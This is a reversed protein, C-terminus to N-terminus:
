QIEEIYEGIFVDSFSEYDNGVPFIVFFAYHYSLDNKYARLKCHDCKCQGEDQHEQLNSSKKAEIVIFNDRTGRHHVIIDPYVSAGNTDSNDIPKKFSNLRKAELGDRNYECDVDYEPFEDQIYMAFRHTISRENVDAVFLNSDRAFLIRYARIIKDKVEM